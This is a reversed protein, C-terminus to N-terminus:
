GTPQVDCCAFAGTAWQRQHKREITSRDLYPHCGCGAVYYHRRVQSERKSIIPREVQPDTDCSVAICTDLIASFSSGSEADCILEAIAPVLQSCSLMNQKLMAAQFLYHIM